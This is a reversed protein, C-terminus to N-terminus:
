SLYELLSNKSIRKGELGKLVEAKLLGNKILNYVTPKTVGLIEAVNKVTYYKIEECPIRDVLDYLLLLKHCNLQYYIKEVTTFQTVVVKNVVGYSKLKKIFDEAKGQFFSQCNNVIYAFLFNYDEFHILTGEEPPINYIQDNLKIERNESGPASGM